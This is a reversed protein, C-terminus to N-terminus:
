GKRRKIYVLLGLVVALAALGTIIIATTLNEPQANNLTPSPELIPQQIPSSFPSPSPSPTLLSITFYAIDSNVMNGATDNAYVVLSHSGETLGTLSTNGLITVNAENDLNYGKWSTPENIIFNLPLAVQSYTKNEISLDSISPYSSITFFVTSFIEAYYADYGQFGNYVTISHNGSKLDSIDISGYLKGDPTSNDFVGIREITGGDISYGVIDRVSVDVMIKGELSPDYFGMLSDVTFFLQISNNYYTTSNQPSMINVKLLLNRKLVVLPGAIDDAKAVEVFVTGALLSTLILSTFIATMITKKSMGIM